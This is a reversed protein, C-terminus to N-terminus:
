SGTDCGSLASWFTNIQSFLAGDTVTSTAKGQGDITVTGILNVGGVIMVAAVRAFADPSNIVNNAYTSRQQHCSTNLAEAKVDKATKVMNYAVRELFDADKALRMQTSSEPLQAAATIPMTFLLAVVTIVFFIPKM